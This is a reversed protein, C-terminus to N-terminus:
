PGNILINMKQKNLKNGTSKRPTANNQKKNTLKKKLYCQKTKM